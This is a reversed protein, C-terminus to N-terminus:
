LKNCLSFFGNKSLLEEEKKKKKLNLIVRFYSIKEFLRGVTIPSFM